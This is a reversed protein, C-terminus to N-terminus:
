ARQPGQAWQQRRADLLADELTSGNASGWVRKSKTRNLALVFNVGWARNGKTSDYYIQIPVPENGYSGWPQWRVHNQVSDALDNLEAQVQVEAEIKPRRAIAAEVKQQIDETVAGGRISVLVDTLLNRMEDDSFRDEIDNM